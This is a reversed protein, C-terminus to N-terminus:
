MTIEHMKMLVSEIFRVGIVIGDGDTWTLDVTSAGFGKEDGEKGNSSDLCRLCLLVVDTYRKGVRPPLERTALAELNQKNEAAAVLPNWARGINEPELISNLIPQKSDGEFDDQVFSTWLGIELLVVGLSYIDHQM